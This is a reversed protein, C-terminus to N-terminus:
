HPTEPCADQMKLGKDGPAAIAEKKDCKLHVLMSSTNALQITITVEM